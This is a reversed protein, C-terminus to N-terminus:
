QYKYNVSLNRVFTFSDYLSPPVILLWSSSQEQFITKRSTPKGKGACPFKLFSHFETLNLFVIILNTGEWILQKNCSVLHCNVCCFLVQEVLLCFIQVLSVMVIKLNCKQVVFCSEYVDVQKLLSEAAESSFGALM